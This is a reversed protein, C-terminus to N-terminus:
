SLWAGTPLALKLLIVFLVYMAGACVVAIISTKLWSAREVVKQWGVMFFLTSLIYGAKEFLWAYLIVLIVGPLFRYLILRRNPTDTEADKTSHEDAGPEAKGILLTNSFWLVGLIVLAVGIYFPIFGAGPSIMAGLKLYQRSYFAVFIGFIILVVSSIRETRSM